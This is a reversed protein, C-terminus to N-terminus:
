EQTNTTVEHVLDASTAPLSRRGTANYSLNFSFLLLNEVGRYKQSKKALTYLAM